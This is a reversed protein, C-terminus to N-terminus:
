FFYKGGVVDGLTKLGMCDGSIIMIDCYVIYM